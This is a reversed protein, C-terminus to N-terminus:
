DCRQFLIRHLNLLEIEVSLQHDSIHFNPFDTANYLYFPRLLREDDHSQPHNVYQQLQQSMTSTTNTGKMPLPFWKEALHQSLEEFSSEQKTLLSKEKRM